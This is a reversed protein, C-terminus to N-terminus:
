DVRPRRRSQVFARAVWAARSKVRWALHCLDGALKGQNQQGELFLKQLAELTRLFESVKASRQNVLTLQLVSLAFDLVSSFPRLQAGSADLLLHALFPDYDGLVLLRASVLSVTILRNLKHVDPAGCVWETLKKAM